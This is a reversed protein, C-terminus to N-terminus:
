FDKERANTEDHEIIAQEWQFQSYSIYDNVTQLLPMGRTEPLLWIISACVFALVCNLALPFWPLDSPQFSLLLIWLSFSYDTLSLFSYSTIKM